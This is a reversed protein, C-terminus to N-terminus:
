RKGSLRSPVPHDYEMNAFSTKAEDPTLLLLLTIQSIVDAALEDLINWLMTDREVVDKGRFDPDLIRIRIAVANQRYVNIKALPHGQGYAALIDKIKQIPPDTKTESKKRSMWAEWGGM